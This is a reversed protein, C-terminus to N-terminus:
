QQIGDVKETIRMANGGELIDRQAFIGGMQLPLFTGSRQANQYRIGQLTSSVQQRFLETATINQIQIM